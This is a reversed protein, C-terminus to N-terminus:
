LFIEIRLELKKGIGNFQRTKKIQMWKYEESCVWFKNIRM